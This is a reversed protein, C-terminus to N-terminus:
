GKDSQRENCLAEGYLAAYAINDRISDNLADERSANQSRVVKLLEMILYGDSPKLDRGTVANFAEIVMEMSREGQPSDYQKARDEMIGKVEGMVSVADVYGSPEESRITNEPAKALGSMVENAKKIVEKRIVSDIKKMGRIIATYETSIDRISFRAKSVKHEFYYTGHQSVKRECDIHNLIITGFASEVMDKISGPVDMYDFALAMFHVRQQRSLSKIDLPEM